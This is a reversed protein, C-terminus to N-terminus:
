LSQKRKNGTGTQSKNAADVKKEVADSAKTANQTTLRKARGAAVPTEVLPAAAVFNKAEKEELEKLYEVLEDPLDNVLRKISKPPLTGNGRYQVEKPIEDERFWAIVKSVDIPLMSKLGNINRNRNFAHYSHGVIFYFYDLCRSMIEAGAAWM